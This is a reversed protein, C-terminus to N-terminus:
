AAEWRGDEKARRVQDEGSRHMRGSAALREALAVNRKSWPSRAGRPSFRRRFTTDDRQALQGDIWGFCIAEVLADDYILATPHTTGKKALVLQREGAHHSWKEALLM